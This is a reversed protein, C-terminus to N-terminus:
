CLCADFVRLRWVKGGGLYEALDVTVVGLRNYGGATNSLQRVSIRLNCPKLTKTKPELKLICNAVTVPADWVIRNASLVGCTETTGSHVFTASALKWKCYVQADPHPINSCAHIVLQIDFVVQHSTDKGPSLRFMGVPASFEVVL